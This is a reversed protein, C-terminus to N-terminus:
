DYVLGFSIIVYRLYVWPVILTLLAEDFKPSTDKTIQTSFPQLWKSILYQGDKYASSFAVLELGWKLFSCSCLTELKPIQLDSLEFTIQNNSYM